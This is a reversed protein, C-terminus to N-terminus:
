SLVSALADVARQQRDATEVATRAVGTERLGDFAPMVDATISVTAWSVIAVNTAHTV